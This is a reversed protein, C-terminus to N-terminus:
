RGTFTAKGPGHELLSAIGHQMDETEFLPPALKALLADAAGIGQTVAAEIVAKTIAHAKTPGAALQRTLALAQERLEADPAIRNAVHWHELKKAGYVGATMIMERARGPGVRAALRQSGGGFPTAGIVAEVLGMQASEGVVVLDSALVLEFGAALCLGQVAAVTPYPLREYRPLMTMFRGLLASAAGASRGQFLAGADAGASFHDGAACVLLGRLPTRELEELLAELDDILQPGFLNLPPNAITAIGVDGDREFTIQEM